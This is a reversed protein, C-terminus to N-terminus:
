QAWPEDRMHLILTCDLLTPIEWATEWWPLNQKSLINWLHRFHWEWFLNESNNLPNLVFVIWKVNRSPVRCFYFKQFLRADNRSNFLSFLLFSPMLFDKYAKTPMRLHVSLKQLVLKGSVLVLHTWYVILSLVTWERVLASDIFRTVMSNKSFFKYRWSDFWLGSSLQKACRVAIVLM